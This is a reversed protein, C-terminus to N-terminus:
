TKLTETGHKLSACYDRMTNKAVIWQFSYDCSKGSLEVMRLVASQILDERHSKWLRFHKQYVDIAAAYAQHTDWERYDTGPQWKKHYDHCYWGRKLARWVTTRSLGKKMLSERTEGKEIHTRAM